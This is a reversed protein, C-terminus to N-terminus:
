TKGKKTKSRYKFPLLRKIDHMNCSIMNIEVERNEAEQLTIFQVQRKGNKYFVFGVGDIEKKDLATDSVDITAHAIKNRFKRVKELESFLNPYNDLYGPYDLKLIKKLLDIKALFSLIQGTAIESFFM